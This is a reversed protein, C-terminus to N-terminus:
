HERVEVYFTAPQWRRISVFRGRSDQQGGHINIHRQACTVVELHALCPLHERVQLLHSGPELPPHFYGRLDQQACQKEFMSSLVHSLQGLCALCPLRERVTRVELLHSGPELPPDIRFAEAHSDIVGVMMSVLTLRKRRYAGAEGELLNVAFAPVKDRSTPGRPCNSLAVIGQKTTVPLIASANAMDSVQICAPFLKIEQWGKVSQM